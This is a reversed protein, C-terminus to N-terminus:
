SGEVEKMLVRYRRGDRNFEIHLLDGDVVRKLFDSVQGRTHDEIGEAVLTATQQFSMERTLDINEGFLRARVQSYTVRKM